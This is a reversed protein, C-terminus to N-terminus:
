SGSIGYERGRVEFDFKEVGRFRTEFIVIRRHHIYGNEFHISIQGYKKRLIM